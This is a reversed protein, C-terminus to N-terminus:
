EGALRTTDDGTHEPVISKAVSEDLSEFDHYGIAEYLEARTMMRDEFGATGGTERIHTYLDRCAFGEVRASTAPWIVIDDGMDQFEAATFHPTRGFETMNAMKWGPLADAFARFDEESPLGDPFVVDAGADKYIKARDIAGSLGEVGAADTRAIVVLDAAARKAANIKAAAEEAPVLRKDNLPGCKKPLMQDEIHVAAAGANELERVTRMANLTGGYGVDGDVILPLDTARSIMRTVFCLEDLGMIGLDPLGLTLTVGGGSVYLAEFGQEQALLGALANHAGPVGLIEPRELLQCLRAGPPTPNRTKGELWTM